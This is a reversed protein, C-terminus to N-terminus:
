ANGLVFRSANLNSKISGPSIFWDSCSFFAIYRGAVYLWALCSFFAMILSPKSTNQSKSSRGRRDSKASVTTPLSEMEIWPSFSLSIPPLLTSNLNLSSFTFLSPLNYTVSSSAISYTEKNPNYKKKKQYSFLPWFCGNRQRRRLDTIGVNASKLHCSFLKSFESGTFPELTLVSSSGWFRKSKNEM